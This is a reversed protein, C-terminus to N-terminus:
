DGALGPLSKLGLEGFHGDILPCVREYAGRLSVLSISSFPEPGREAHRLFFDIFSDEVRQLFLFSALYHRGADGVLQVQAPYAAAIAAGLQGPWRHPQDPSSRFRSRLPSLWLRPATGGHGSVASVGGSSRRVTRRSCCRRHRPWRRSCCQTRSNTRAQPRTRLFAFGTAGTSRRGGDTSLVRGRVAPFRLCSPQTSRTATTSGGSSRLDRTADLPSDLSRAASTGVLKVVASTTPTTLSGIWRQGM